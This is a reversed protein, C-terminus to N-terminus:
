AHGHPTLCASKGAPPSSIFSDGFSIRFGAAASSMMQTTAVASSASVLPTVAARMASVSRSFASAAPKLIEKPSLKM